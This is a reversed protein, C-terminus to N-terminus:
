GTAQSLVPALEALEVEAAAIGQAVASEFWRRAERLDQHGAAGIRFYRGLM